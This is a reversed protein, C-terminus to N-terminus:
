IDLILIIIFLLILLEVLVSNVHVVRSLPIFKEYM